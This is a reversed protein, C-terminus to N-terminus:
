RVIYSPHVKFLETDEVRSVNVMYELAVGLLEVDQEELVASHSKLFTALFIGLQQVFDKEDQTGDAFAVQLDVSPPVIEILQRMVQLDLDLTLGVPFLVSASHCGVEDFIILQKEVAGEHTIGALENLVKLTANRFNPVLFFKRVLLEVLDSGFVYELDIWNIFGLLTSLTELLLSPCESETLVYQCLEFVAGFEEKMSEKLRTAKAETMRGPNEFVQANHTHTVGSHVCYLKPCRVEDSLEKLIRMNNECLSESSKSAGVIDSIFTPWKDPWEQVVIQILVSNLKLVFTRENDLTEFSSALDIASQVVFEKIGEAQEAPLVRWARQITGDLVQLAFRQARVVPDASSFCAIFFRKGKLIAATCGCVEPVTGM